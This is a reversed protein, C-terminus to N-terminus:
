EVPTDSEVTPVATPEAKELNVDPAFEAKANTLKYRPLEKFGFFGAVMSTPFKQLDTNYVQVDENYKQRAVSIRNESGEIQVQLNRVFELSQQNPYQTQVVMYGRFLSGISGAVADSAQLQGNVDGARQANVFAAQQKAINAYIEEEHRLAGKTSGVMQNILDFRRQLQTEIQSGQTLGEQKETILRNYSGFVIGIVMLIVLAIIGFTAGLAVLIGKM